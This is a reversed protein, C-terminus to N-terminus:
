NIITSLRQYDKIIKSISELEYVIFFHVNGMDHDNVIYTIYKINM